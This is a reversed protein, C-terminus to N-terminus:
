FRMVVRKKGGKSGDGKGRERGEREAQKGRRREDDYKNIGVINRCLIIRGCYMVPFVYNMDEILPFVAVIGHNIM